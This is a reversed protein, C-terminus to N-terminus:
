VAFRLAVCTCVLPCCFFVLAFYFLWALARGGGAFFFLGFFRWLEWLLSPVACASCLCRVRRLFQGGLWLVVGSVRRSVATTRASFGLFAACHLLSAPLFRSASAFRAPLALCCRRLALTGLCCRRPCSARPLLPAPCAVCCSGPAVDPPSVIALDPRAGFLPGFWLKM